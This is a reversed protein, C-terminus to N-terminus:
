LDLLKVCCFIINLFIQFIVCKIYVVFYYYKPTGSRFSKVFPEGPSPRHFFTVQKLGYKESNIFFLSSTQSESAKIAIFNQYLIQCRCVWTNFNLQPPESMCQLGAHHTCYVAYRYFPPARSSLLTPQFFAM